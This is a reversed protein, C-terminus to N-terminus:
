SRLIMCLLVYSKNKKSLNLHEHYLIKSTEIVHDTLCIRLLFKKGLFINFTDETRLSIKVNIIKSNSINM